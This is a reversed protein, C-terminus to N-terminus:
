LSTVELTRKLASKGAYRQELQVFYDTPSLPETQLRRQNDKENFNVIVHKSLSYTSNEHSGNVLVKQM